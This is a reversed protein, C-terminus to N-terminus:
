IFFTNPNGYVAFLIYLVGEHVVTSCLNFDGRGTAVDLVDQYTSLGVLYLGLLSVV